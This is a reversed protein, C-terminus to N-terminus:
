WGPASGLPGSAKYMASHMENFLEFNTEQGKFSSKCVKFTVLNLAFIGRM